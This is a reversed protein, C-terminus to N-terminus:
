LRKAIKDIHFSEIVDGEKIDNFNHLSIGCEYGEQVERVDDKFRKLASLTGEFIVVNDRLLRIRNTRLIKGKFVYGGGITGVKSSHFTKRIEVRGDLAEKLTPELL